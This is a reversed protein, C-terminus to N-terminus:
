DALLDSISGGAHLRAIAEALLPAIDLVDLRRALVDEPLRFPALTDTVVIREFAPAALLHAAGPAFVGHTALAFVRRAGQQRCAEGAHLLTTGTSVLDDLVIVTRSAVDGVLTGGGVVGASRTKNLFAMGVERGLARSLSAHFREARKVGGIDPSVVCVLEDGILPAVHRVFLPRAELNETRCRFANEFAALNHVDMTVVRDTGVAEFLAAMIRTTVPDRPKTRRDKRAYALYPAVVTVRRASCDRLAGVFILLRFLRDHVSRHPSGHLSQVVFVDKDRVGVLPRIKLEGDEFTREEFPCLPLELREAIRRGQAWDPDLDFLALEDRAM